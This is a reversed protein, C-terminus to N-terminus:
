AENPRLISSLAQGIEHPLINSTPIGTQHKKPMNTLSSVSKSCSTESM